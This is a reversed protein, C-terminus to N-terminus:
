FLLLLGGLAIGGFTVIACVGIVGTVGFKRYAGYCAFGTVIGGGLLALAGFVKLKHWVDQAASQLETDSYKQPMNTSTVGSQPQKADAGFARVTLFFGALSLIILILKQM